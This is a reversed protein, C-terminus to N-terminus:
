SGFAQNVLDPRETIVTLVEADLQFSFSAPKTTEIVKEPQIDYGLKFAQLLNRAQELASKSIRYHIFRDIIWEFERQTVNLKALTNRLKTEDGTHRFEIFARLCGEARRSDVVRAKPWKLHQHLLFGVCLCSILFIITRPSSFVRRLIM